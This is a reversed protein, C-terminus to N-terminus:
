RMGASKTRKFSRNQSAPIARLNGRAEPAGGKVLPKIHDVDKGDGKHVVGAKVMQARAQNRESRKKIQDPSSQYRAYEQAYNRTAM